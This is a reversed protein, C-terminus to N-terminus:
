KNQVFNLISLKDVIYFLYYAVSRSSGGWLFVDTRANATELTPFRAKVVLDVRSYLFYSGLLYLTLDFTLWFM